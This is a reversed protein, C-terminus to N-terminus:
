KDGINSKYNIIAQALKIKNLSKTLMSEKYQNLVTIYDNTTVIGNKLRVEEIDVVEKRKEVIKDDVLTISKYKEIEQISSAIAISNDRAFDSQKVDLLRKDNMYEVKKHKTSKWNTLPVSLKLGVVYYWGPTTRLMDLGPLGIGGSAFASIKPNNYSKLFKMRNDVVDRQMDFLQYEPRNSNSNAIYSESPLLYEMNPTFVKGTIISLSEIIKFRNYKIEILHQEATLRESEFKVISGKTATGYQKMSNFMKINREIMDIHVKVIEKNEKLLVVALFLGSVRDRLNLEDIDGMKLETGLISTSIDKTAASAGGDWILQEIDLTMRYQENKLPDLSPLPISVVESQYSLLGNIAASPIYASGADKVRSDATSRSIENRKALTSNKLALEYCEELTVKESQQGCVIIPSLFLLVLTIKIVKSVM